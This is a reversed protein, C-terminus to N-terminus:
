TPKARIRGICRPLHKRDTAGSAAGSRLWAAPDGRAADARMLDFLYPSAEAIGLLITKAFRFSRPSIASRLRRRV